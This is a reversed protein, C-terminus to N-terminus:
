LKSDLDHQTGRLAAFIVQADDSRSVSEDSLQAIIALRLQHLRAVEAEDPSMDPLDLSLTPEKAPDFPAEYRPFNVTQAPTPPTCGRMSWERQKADKLEWINSANPSLTKEGHGFLGEKDGALFAAFTGRRIDGNHMRVALEYQQWNGVLGIPKLDPKPGAKVVECRVFQAFGKDYHVIQGIKLTQAKAHGEESMAAWSRDFQISARIEQGRFAKVIGAYDGKYTKGDVVIPDDQSVAEFTDQGLVGTIKWIPNGDAYSFRFQTGIRIKITSAAVPM